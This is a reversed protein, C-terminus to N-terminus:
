KTLERYLQNVQEKLHNVTSDNIILYDAKAVKQAPPLQQKMRREFDEPNGKYRARCQELPSDVVIVAGFRGQFGGEFLLPVEAVFLTASTKVEEYMRDIENM